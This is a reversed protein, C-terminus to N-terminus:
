VCSELSREGETVEARQAMTSQDKAKLTSSTRTFQDGNLFFFVFVSLFLAPQFHNTSSEGMIRAIRELVSSVVKGDGDGGGGTRLNELGFLSNKRMFIKTTKTEGPFAHQPM